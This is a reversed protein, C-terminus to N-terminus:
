RRSGQRRLFHHHVLKLDAASFCRRGNLRAPEKVFGAELAYKLRHTPVGVARAAQGTSYM